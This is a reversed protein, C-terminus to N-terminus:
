PSKSRSITKPSINFHTKIFNEAYKAPNGIIKKLSDIDLSSIRWENKKRAWEMLFNYDYQNISDSHEMVKKCKESFFTALRKMLELMLPYNIEPVLPKRNGKGTKPILCNLLLEIAENRKEENFEWRAINLIEIFRRQINPNHLIGPYDSILKLLSKDDHERIEKIGKDINVVSSDRKIFKLANKTKKDYVGVSNSFSHLGSIYYFFGNFTMNEYFINWSDALGKGAIDPLERLDFEEVLPDIALGPYPVIARSGTSDQVIPYLRLDDNGFYFAHYDFLEINIKADNITDNAIKIWDSASKGYRSPWLTFHFPNNKNIHSKSKSSPKKKKQPKKNM